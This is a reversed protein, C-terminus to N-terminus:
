TDAEDASGPDPRGAARHDELRVPGALRDLTIHDGGARQATGLAEQARALLGDVDLEEGARMVAVGVSVTVRMEVDGVTIPRLGLRHQIADAFTSAGSEETHPLIALFTDSGTRGLEDAERVRLRIRLAVERLIADGGASGYARNLEAFEDIDVLVVGVPHLYRRAQAVEIRLRDLIASRSAIGTLPDISSAREIEQRQLEITRRAQLLEEITGRLERGLREADPSAGPDRVVATLGRGSRQLSISLEGIGVVTAISGDDRPLASIPVGLLDELRTGSSAQDLGLLVTATANWDRLRLGGDFRLVADTLGPVDPLADHQDNGVAPTAEAADFRTVIAIVQSAILATLGIVTEIGGIRALSAAAVGVLVASAVPAAAHGIGVLAALVAIAVGVGALIPDAPAAGGDLGPLLEALVAIEAVGVIAVAAGIRSGHGGRISLGARDTVGAALLALSAVIAPVSLTASALLSLGGGALAACAGAMLLESLRGSRLGAVLWTLAAVAALAVLMAALADPAWALGSEALDAAPLARTVVLVALLPGAVLLGLTTRSARVASSREM